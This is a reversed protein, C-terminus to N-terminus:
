KSNAPEAKSATETATDLLKENFRALYKMNSDAGSFGIVTEDWDLQKSLLRGADMDFRLEGQSLQQILQSKIKANTIPTLVQTTVGITAVGASVKKLEYQLRVKVVKVRQDDSRVRIDVPKSWTHGIPVAEAPLPISVGGMGLDPSDQKDNRSVISGQPDMTIQDLTKGVNKAVDEYEVPPEADTKSNYRVPKRGEVSRWMDVNELVHEFIINGESTVEKVVYARDSISRMQMKQNSGSITTDVTALHETQYRLKEGPQFRYRLLHKENTISQTAENLAAAVDDQDAALCTSVATVFLFVVSARLYLLKFTQSM